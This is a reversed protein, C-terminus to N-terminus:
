MDRKLKMKPLTQSFVEEETRRGGQRRHIEFAQRLASTEPLDSFSDRLVAEVAAEADKRILTVREKRAFNFVEQLLRNNVNWSLTVEDPDLSLFAVVDKHGNTAAFSKATSKDNNHLTADAGAAVLAEACALKGYYAAAMLPTSGKASRVNRDAGMELLWKLVHLHGGRAAVFLPGDTGPQDIDGGLAVLRKAELLDGANCAETLAANNNGRAEVDM